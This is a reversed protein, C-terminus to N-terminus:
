HYSVRVTDFEKIEVGAVKRHFNLQTQLRQYENALDDTLISKMSIISGQFASLGTKIVISDANIGLLADTTQSVEVFKMLMKTM